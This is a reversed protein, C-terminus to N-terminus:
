VPHDEHLSTQSGSHYGTSATSTKNRPINLMDFQMKWDGNLKNVLPYTKEENVINVVISPKKNPVGGNSISANPIINSPETIENNNELIDVPVDISQKSRLRPPTYISPPVIDSYSRMQKLQKGNSNMYRHKKQIPSELSEETPRSKLLIQREPM